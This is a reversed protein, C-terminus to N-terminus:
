EARRELLTWFEAWTLKRPQENEDYLQYEERVSESWLDHFVYLAGLAYQRCDLPENAGHEQWVKRLGGRPTPKDHRNESTLGDYYRKDYDAPFHCYGPLGSKPPNGDPTGIRLNGYVEQKLKDTNLLILRCTTGPVNKSITFLSRESSPLSDGKSPMLNDPAGCNECFSYVTTTKDGSDTLAMMTILPGHPTFLAKQLQQWCPDSLNSTDVAPITLYELSWSEKDRAWAVFECYIANPHVDVGATVILPHAHSPLTGGAMYGEIQARDRIPEKLPAEGREEWTLGLVTNFFVRLQDLDGQADIWEQCIAEWSAMGLPSYLSNIHYSLFNPRRPEKTPIWEAEGGRGKEKLFFAKDDNKWHGSCKECEYHVSERILRGTDDKQYKMQEWRLPQKHGCHKCPVNYYRLDGDGTLKEIKSRQKVTPTSGYLIKRQREWDSTRKRFLSIPDGEAQRKGKTKDQAGIQDPFADIEDLSGYRIGTVRLKAGVNPGVALLFGGPFEKKSKTDGTKKNSKKDSQAFIKGGLGASEIMRDIKLEISTEAMGKDGSIFMMPGPAVDVVYGIWNELVATTFCIRAGKMVAVEQVPSNESLCDAIERMYPCVDWRFAGPLPSLDSPLTRHTEAWESVLMHNIAPKVLAARDTLMGEVGSSFDSQRM